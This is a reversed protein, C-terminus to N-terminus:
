RCRSRLTRGLRSERDWIAYDLALMDVDLAAAVAEALTKARAPSVDDEGLARAMFRRIMVDAKIGQEHLLM